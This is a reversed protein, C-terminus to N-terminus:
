KARMAEVPDLKAAFYAPLFGSILGIAISIGIGIIVDRAAMVIALGLEFYDMIYQAITAIGFVMLIGLLGGGLCLLIAEILFQMLIFNQKAGLAKQIGIENTREKVSVFMINAIGFGGVLLSFISIIAGGVNLAGFISQLQEMLMEQKNISFNDEKEPRLSRIQRLLGMVDGEVRDMIL